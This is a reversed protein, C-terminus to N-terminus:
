ENPAPTPAPTEIPTAATTAGEVLPFIPKTPSDLVGAILQKINISVFTLLANLDHAEANVHPEGKVTGSIATVTQSLRKFFSHGTTANAPTSHTSSLSTQSDHHGPPHAIGVAMEAAGVGRPGQMQLFELRKRRTVALGGWSRGPKKANYSAALAAHSVAGSFM